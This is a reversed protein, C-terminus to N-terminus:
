LYVSYSCKGCKLFRMYAHEPYLFIISAVAEGIETSMHDARM